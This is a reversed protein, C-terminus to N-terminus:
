KAKADAVSYCWIVGLDRIYLRGNAVVPYAWAKSKGREPQGPPTFRGHERYSEGSPEVLAVEGSEGHVYLRSDAFCISAPGVSRDQWLEKGTALEVCLLGNNTTGFLLKGRLVAGGISSPLGRKFYVPEASAKGNDAKL